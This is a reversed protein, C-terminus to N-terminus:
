AILHILLGDRLKPEFWTSKPPMIGGEDAIRMLDDVTVPFMSFAVAAEGRDVQAQLVAAGRIGGIFDIRPDRRVDEIGLLPALIGQDLRAVDLAAARDSSDVSFDALTVNHWTGDLYISVEGAQAPAPGGACVPFTAAIQDLFERPSRGNLDKVVRNYPLIRVQTSPFAVAIVTDAESPVTLRDRRAFEARVRAAGAARHHGDAIYLAPVAKFAKVLLDVDPSSVRWVTHKVNDPAEFDFLPTGTCVRDMLVDIEERSRYTLFVLGTQAGLEGMHRTRDDEKNRRTHEHKKILGRDYEDLSCCATLGTQERGNAQLRYCYLSAEAERVFPAANRITRFNETARAYVADAHPDTGVPLEIEARSVRLFSLPEGDALERAEDSSVVDYPVSAVRPAADPVPRLARFPRIVAM